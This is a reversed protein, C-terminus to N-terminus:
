CVQLEAMFSGYCMERIKKLYLVQKETCTHPSKKISAGTKDTQIVGHIEPFLMLFVKTLM